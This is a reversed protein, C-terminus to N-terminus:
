RKMLVRYFRSTANTGHESELFTVPGNTFYVEGAQVWNSCDASAQMQYTYRADAEFAFSRAAPLSSPTLHSIRLPPILWIEPSLVTTHANMAQLSYAGAEAPSFNPVVFTANTANPIPVGDRFWIYSYAGPPTIPVELTAATGPPQVRVPTASAFEIGASEVEIVKSVLASSTTTWPSTSITTAGLFLVGDREVDFATVSLAGSEDSAFVRWQLAGAPSFKGVSALAEGPATGLVYLNNHEDRKM